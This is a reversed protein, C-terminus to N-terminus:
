RASLIIWMDALPELSEVSVYFIFFVGNSAGLSSTFFIYIYNEDCNPVKLLWNIHIGVLNLFNLKYSLELKSKIFNIEISIIINIITDYKM